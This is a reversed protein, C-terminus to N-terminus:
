KLLGLAGIKKKKLFFYIRYKYYHCYHAFRSLADGCLNVEHCPHILISMITIKLQTSDGYQESAFM